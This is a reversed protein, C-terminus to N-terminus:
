RAHLDPRDRLFAGVRSAAQQLPQVERWRRGLWWRRRVPEFVETWLNTAELGESVVLWTASRRRAARVTLTEKGRGASASEDNLREAVAVLADWTLDRVVIRHHSIPFALAV